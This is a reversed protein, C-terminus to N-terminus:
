INTVFHVAFMHGRYAMPVMIVTTVVTDGGKKKFTVQITSAKMKKTADWYTSSVTGQSKEAVYPELFGEIDAWEKPSNCGLLTALL